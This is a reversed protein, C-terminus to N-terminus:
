EDPGSLRTAFGSMFLGTAFAAFGLFTLLRAPALRDLLVSLPASVLQALGTVLVVMGIEIPGLYRVLSLFVPLLYVSGYLGIGLIFSLACGYALYRDRFLSFDVAPKPRLVTLALLVAFAAFLSLTVPSFWGLDPAQKLGIELSALAAAIFLVSALDLQRLLGLHLPQRPLCTLSLAVTVVGPVVNILFLWHWSLHETILGGMIPGMSPAIVAVLGGAVTAVAQQTGPRFLLFVAAFALPMLVGAAMGQLVRFGILMAFGSSLACGVSALTFLTTAVILLTRMSLMRMLVGTLPITIIEAILYSTQVWSMRDAGIKLAKDIVGLSTVVIQIDLVAMFMALCLGAFGLWTRVMSPSRAEPIPETM